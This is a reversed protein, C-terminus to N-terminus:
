LNSNAMVIVTNDDYDILEMALAFFLSTGTKKLKNM